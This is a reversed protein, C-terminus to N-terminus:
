QLAATLPNLCTIKCRTISIVRHIGGPTYSGVFGVPTSDMVLDGITGAASGFVRMHHLLHSTLAKLRRARALSQM